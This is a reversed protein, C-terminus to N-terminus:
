GMTDWDFHNLDFGMGPQQGDQQLQGLNDWGMQAGQMGDGYTLDQVGFDMPMPMFDDFNVEMTGASQPVSVGEAEAHSAAIIRRVDSVIWPLEIQRGQQVVAAEHADWAQLVLRSFYKFFPNDDPELDEFRAELDESMIRWAGEAYQRGPRKKIDQFIHIYAPFFFQAKVYWLFGKTLPSTILKTDFEIIRLAYHVAVDRDADTQQGPSRSHKSFHEWLRCKELQSRMMWITLFQVPSQGDCKSLYRGVLMKEFAALRSGDPKSGENSDRALPKLAPNTFDLYWCSHRIYDALLCRVVPFLAETPQDHVPPLSKRDPRIEFDNVNAPTRCDWTPIMITSKLNSSMECTRSDLIVLAWWLRRRMEAELASCKANSAENHLGIYQAIRLAVGLMSSLSHPDISPKISLQFYTLALRILPLVQRVLYLYLATLSDRDDSRLFGCRLLAQQCGFQYQNLLEEQSADFMSRCEDKTLSLISICYIAFMLAELTPTVNSLNGAADIISTQLTPTHTVKLVPNVNDLYVQWLKFVHVHRPHLTSLDVNTQPSGFLLHDKNDPVLRSWM